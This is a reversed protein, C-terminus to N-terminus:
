RAAAPHADLWRRALDPFDTFLGDVGFRGYFAALEDDFTAHGKGIDDARFTYPHVLLGRRHAREVLTSVVQRKYEVSGWLDEVPQSMAAAQEGLRSTHALIERRSKGKLWQEVEAVRIPPNSPGARRTIM